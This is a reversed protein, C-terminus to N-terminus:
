NTCICSKSSVRKMCMKLSSKLLGSSVSVSTIVVASSMYANCDALTLLPRVFVRIQSKDLVKFSTEMKISNEILSLFQGFRLLSRSIDTALDHGIRQSGMSQLGGPVETWPIRWALLSSHTAM